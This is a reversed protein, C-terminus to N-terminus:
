FVFDLTASFLTARGNWDAEIDRWLMWQRGERRVNSRDVQLKLAMNPLFDYRAGLSLTHQGPHNIGAINVTGFAPPLPATSPTGAGMDIDSRAAIISFSMYPTWDGLRYGVSLYGSHFDPVMDSESDLYTYMLQAQLPGRDLAIGASMFHYTADATAGKAIGTLVPNGSAELMDLLDGFDGKIDYGLELHTYGLRFQWESLQYNIHGGVLQSGGVDAYSHEDIALKDAAEGAFLKGWLLGEGVPKRVVLDVGNLKSFQLIGYYEVPPRVWLYSYGVDRSDALMYVDWGLRGARLELEESPNYKIFGWTLDPSYKGDYNYHSVLQATAEWTDSPRYSLQLGLRSDTHGSTGGKVGKPQTIDRTFGAGDSSNHAIGLTGFGRVTFDSEAYLGTSALLALLPLVQLARPLNRTLKILLDKRFVHNSALPPVSQSLHPIQDVALILQGILTCLV